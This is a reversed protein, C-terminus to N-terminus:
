VFSLEDNTESYFSFLLDTVPAWLKLKLSFELDNQTPNRFCLVGRFLGGNFSLSFSWCFDGKSIRRHFETWLYKSSWWPLMMPARKQLQATCSSWVMATVCCRWQDKSNVGKWLKGNHNNKHRRNVLKKIAALTSCLEPSELAILLIKKWTYAPLFEKSFKKIQKGIWM